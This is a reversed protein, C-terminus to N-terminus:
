KVDFARSVRGVPQGDILTVVSATYRGPALTGTAFDAEAILIAGSLPSSRRAMLFRQVPDAAGAPIVELAATTTELLAPDNAYIEILAHVDNGRAIQLRPQLRGGDATGVILDSVQLAGAARLGVTLPVDAVGARGEADAAVFRLRYKGPTLKASTTVSWPAPKTADIRARGNAVANGENLVVFGWDAPGKSQAAGIEGSLLVRLTSAEDGRTTYATVAIPLSAVDTPQQLLVKVPDATVAGTAPNGAVIQRRARVSAGPRSVEVRIEHVKGDADGAVSEVGLEYYNALEAGIREFVGTAAGVGQSFSGGTMGAITTLGASMERSGFASTIERRQTATDTSPQDVHVTHFLVGSAAAHRTFMEYEPLLQQDFRLGGSLFVIHKPGRLPALQDVLTGLTALTSQAQSRAMLLMENAQTIVGKDCGEAVKVIKEPSEPPAIDRGERCERAYVQDLAQKDRREIGEAEDWTIYWRWPPTPMTGTMRALGERVRAHERTLDVRGNPLGVLGAADAPSLADLVLSSGQLLAKEGGSRITDRDVVFVVARGAATRANTVHAAAPAGPAVTITAEPAGSADTGYFRAFVVGRPKGDVTVTFDAPGLDRLPKGDRDFVASEVTLLDIGARFTAFPQQQASAYGSFVLLSSTLVLAAPRV